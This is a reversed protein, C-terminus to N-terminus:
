IKRLNLLRIERAFNSKLAKVVAIDRNDIYQKSYNIM